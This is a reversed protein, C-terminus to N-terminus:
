IYLASFLSFSKGFDIGLSNQPLKYAFTQEIRTIFELKQEKIVRKIIKDRDIIKGLADQKM